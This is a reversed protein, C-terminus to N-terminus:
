SSPDRENKLVPPTESPGGGWRALTAADIVADRLLTVHAPKCVSPACEAHFLYERGNFHLAAVADPGTSPLIIEGCEACTPLPFEVTM